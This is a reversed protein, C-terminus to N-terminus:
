PARRGDRGTAFWQPARGRRRAGQRKVRRFFTGM